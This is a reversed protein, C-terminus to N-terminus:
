EEFQVEVRAGAFGYVPRVGGNYDELLQIGDADVDEIGDFNTMIYQEIAKKVEDNSLRIKAM